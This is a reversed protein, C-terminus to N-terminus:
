FAASMVFHGLLFLLHRGPREVEQLHGARPLQMLSMSLCALLGVDGGGGAGPESQLEECPSGALSSSVQKGPWLVPLLLSRDLLEPSELHGFVGM